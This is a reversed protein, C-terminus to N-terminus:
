FYRYNSVAFFNLLEFRFLLFIYCSHLKDYYFLNLMPHPRDTFILRMKKAAIFYFIFNIESIILLIALKINYFM